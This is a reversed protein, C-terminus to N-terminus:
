RGPFCAPWRGATCAMAGPVQSLQTCGARSALVGPATRGDILDRRRVDALVRRQGRKFDGGLSAAAAAGAVAIEAAAVGAGDGEARGVRRQGHFGIRALQELAQEALAVGGLFALSQGLLIGANEIQNRWRLTRDALAAQARLVAGHQAIIEFRHAFDLAAHLLHLRVIKRVDVNGLSGGPRGGCNSCCM